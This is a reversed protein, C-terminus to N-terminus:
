IKSTYQRIIGKIEMKKFFGQSNMYASMYTNGMKWLDASAEHANSGFTREFTDGLDYLLQGIEYLTPNYINNSFGVPSLRQFTSRTAVLMDFTDTLVTHIASVCNITTLAIMKCIMKTDSASSFNKLSRINNEATVRKINSLKQSYNDITSESNELLGCLIIAEANQPNVSIISRYLQIAVSYNKNYIANRAGTLLEIIKNDGTDKATQLNDNEALFINIENQACYYGECIYKYDLSEKSNEVIDKMADVYRQIHQIILSPTSYEFPNHNLHLSIIDGAYGVKAFADDTLLFALEFWKHADKYLRLEELLQGYEHAFFENNKAFETSEITNFLTKSIELNPEVGIGCRYCKALYFYGEEDKPELKNYQRYCDYADEFRDINEYLQGLRILIYNNAYHNNILRRYVSIAQEISGFELSDLAAVTYCKALLYGADDNGNYFLDYCLDITERLVMENGTELYIDLREQLQNLQENTTM